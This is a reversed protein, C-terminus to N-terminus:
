GQEGQSRLEALLLQYVNGTALKRVFEPSKLHDVAKRIAARERRSAEAEILQKLRNVNFETLPSYGGKIQDILWEITPEEVTGVPCVPHWTATEHGEIVDM